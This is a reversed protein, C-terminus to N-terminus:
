LRLNQIFEKSLKTQYPELKNRIFFLCTLLTAACSFVTTELCEKVKWSCFDESQSINYLLNCCRPFPKFVKNIITGTWGCDVIYTFGQQGAVKRQVVQGVNPVCRQPRPQNHNDGQKGGEEARLVGGEKGRAEEGARRGVFVRVITHLHGGQLLYKLTAQEESFFLRAQAYSGLLLTSSMSIM